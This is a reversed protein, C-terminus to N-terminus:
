KPYFTTVLIMGGVKDLVMVSTRAPVAPGGRAPVTVGIPQAYPTTLVLRGGARPNAIWTSIRGAHAKEAQRFTDTAIDADAFTSAAAYRRPMGPPATNTTARAQLDADTKGVHRDMTHGGRAEMYALIPDAAARGPIGRPAVAGPPPPPPPPPLAPSPLPPPPPLALSPLPSPPPLPLAPLPPPPPPPLVPCHGGPDVYRVPCGECYAYLNLTKWNDTRVYEVGDPSLMRSYAACYYRANFYYLGTASDLEKGCFRYKGPPAKQGSTWILATGGYPYYEECRLVQADEGLEMDVSGLHSELQYVTRRAGATDTERKRTDALFRYVQACSMEGAMVRMSTRYLKPAAATIRKVCYDGIYIYDTVEVCEGKKQRTIKRVRMGKGDYAYLEEDNERGERELIVARLLRNDYDWDLRRIGPLSLTNGCDDYTISDAEFSDRGSRCVRELRNSDAAPDMEVTFGGAGSIHRIRTLNGGIDYGYERAYAALNKLDSPHGATERGTARVLRGYLDYTYDWVPEIIQQSNVIRKTLGDRIRSIAGTPDYTYFLSRVPTGDARKSHTSELLRTVASYNWLTRIGNGYTIETRRGEANYLIDRIVVSKASSEWLEVSHLRDGYDYRYVYLSGDPALRRTLCGNTNYTFAEKYEEPELENERSWDPTRGVQRLVFRSKEKVRGRCNYLWYTETGAGDFRKYVQGRLNKSKCDPVAEGYVTRDAMGAGELMTQLPRLLGDYSIIRHRGNANFLHVPRGHAGTLQISEGADCRYSALESGRMDYCYAASPSDAELLRADLAKILRQGSDYRYFTYSGAPEDLLDAIKNQRSDLVAIRVRDRLNLAKLLADKRDKQREDPEKPCVNMFDRFYPSEELRRTEDYDRREWPHYATESNLYGMFTGDPGSQPTEVMVPRRYADYYHRVPPPLPAGNGCAANDSFFAPYTLLASGYGDYVWRGSVAWRGGGARQKEEIKQGLGDWYTVACNILCDPEDSAPAARTLAVTCVPRGTEQYARPNCYYFSTLGQLYYLPADLVEELSAARPMYEEVPGDGEPVGKCLGFRTAALVQGLPNFVYQSVNDNEDTIRGYDLAWHDIDGTTTNFTNEDIWHDIRVPLLCRIDYFLVTKYFFAGHEQLVPLFFSAPDYRTIFGVSWWCGDSFRHGCDQLAGEGLRDRLPAFGEPFVAEERHHRLARTGIEGLPLPEAQGDDWYYCRSRAEERSQKQGDAFETGYPIRNRMAASLELELQETHFYGSELGHLEYRCTEVEVGLLRSIVTENCVRTIKYSVLQTQQAAQLPLPLSKGFGSRRPYNVKCSRIVSGFNDVELTFLHTAAPDDTTSEYCFHLEQQAYTFYAGHRNGEPALLERVRYVNQEVIAPGAAGAEYREIRLLRGTLAKKAQKRNTVAEFGHEEVPPALPDSRSYGSSVDAGTYFWRKTHLIPRRAPAYENRQTEWQETAGFGKFEHEAFDYLGERYRCRTTLTTKSIADVTTKEVVLQIPFPPKLRWPAGARCDELYQQVSSEYRLSTCLGANNNVGNLLYPKQGGAFDYCYHTIGSDLKSFIMCLSGTGNVDAFSIKDQKTYPAPLLISTPGTFYRGCRNWYIDVRDPYAYIYDATGSGDLDAFFVRGGDFGEPFFPANEVPRSAGFKGYGLNPFCEVSGNKVRVRHELGDGFMDLFCVVQRPSNQTVHPFDEPLVREVPEAVGRKEVTPYYRLGGAQTVLLHRMRDGQLDASERHALLQEGAFLEFPKFESWAGDLFEYYGNLYPSRVVLDYRGNGLLSVLSLEKKKLDSHIPFNPLPEPAGYRYGGLPRCYFATKGGTYLLGAAGEGYLDVPLFDGGSREFPLRNETELVRYEGSQPSFSTYSFQLDPLFLCDPEREKGPRIGAATIKELKSIGSESNYFFCTEHVTQAAGNVRHAMEIKSCLVDTEILFGSNFRLFHDCRGKEYYFNVCFAWKEMGNEPYNGYEITKINHNHDYTYRTKSGRNDITECLLWSFVDSPCAPNPIVSDPSVGYLSVTNKRDTIKWHPRGADSILEIRAFEHENRCLFARNKGETGQLVLEGLATHIFTDRDDDYLPIHRKTMRSVAPLDLSFGLGFVGNGASSRYSLSLQPESDRCPSVKIPISLRGEGTFQEVQLSEGLGKFAGGGKPSSIAEIRVAGKTQADMM